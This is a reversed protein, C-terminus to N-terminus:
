FNKEQNLSIIFALLLYNMVLDEFAKGNLIGDVKAGNVINLLDRITWLLFRKQM